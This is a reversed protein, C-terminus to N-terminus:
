FDGPISFSALLRSLATGKANHLVDVQEYVGSPDNGNFGRMCYEIMIGDYDMIAADNFEQGAMFSPLFILRIDFVNEISM